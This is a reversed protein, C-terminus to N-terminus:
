MGRELGDRRVVLRGNPDRAVTVQRGILAAVDPTAPMVALRRNAQDLVCVLPTASSDQGCALMRGRMGLAVAPLATVGHEAALRRGIDIRELERLARVKEERPEVPIGLGHLFREREALAARVAAGLGYYARPAAPDQTDLWCPARAAIQGLLAPAMTEARVLRRPHSVDRSELVRALDPPVRWRGEDVRVVIKHRELRALRRVNAAVVEEASVTKGGVNLPRKRLAELNAKADYVGGNERAVRELVRDM